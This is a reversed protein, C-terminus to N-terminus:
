SGQSVKFDNAETIIQNWMFDCEYNVDNSHTNVIETTNGNSNFDSTDQFLNPRGDTFIIITTLIILTLVMIEIM